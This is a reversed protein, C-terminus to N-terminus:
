EQVEAEGGDISGLGRWITLDIRASTFKVQGDLLLVNVGGPHLSRAAFAGMGMPTGDVCDPIASNPSLVHNYWTQPYGSLVWTTGGFSFHVPAGAIPQGCGNMADDPTTFTNVPNVSLLDRWPTYVSPNRDGSLKEAFSATHSKGDIIEADKRGRTSRFGQLAANPGVFTSTHLWPSTGASIRYNCRVASSDDSPCSYVPVPTFLLPSNATSTPPDQDLGANTEEPEYESYLSKHDLYPLLEVHPSLNSTIQRGSSDVSVVSASPFRGRVSHFNELAIGIQHLHSQCSARRAAERASQVAPLLLGILLSLIGM